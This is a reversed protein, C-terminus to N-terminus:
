NLERGLSIHIQEKVVYLMRNFDFMTTEAVCEEFYDGLIEYDSSNM